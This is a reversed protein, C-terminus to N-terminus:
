AMLLDLFDVVHNISKLFTSRRHGTVRLTALSRNGAISIRRDSRERSQFYGEGGAGRGSPSPQGQHFRPRPSPYREGNEDAPLAGGPM